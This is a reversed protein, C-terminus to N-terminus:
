RGFEDAMSAAGSMIGRRAGRAFSPAGGKIINESLQPNTLMRGMGKAYALPATAGLMVGAITKADIGGSLVASILGGLAAGSGAGGLQNYMSHKQTKSVNAERQTARIGRGVSAVDALDQQAKGDNGTLIQKVEPSRMKEYNTVFTDPSFDSGTQMQGERKRGLEDIIDGRVQGWNYRLMLRQDQSLPSMPDEAAIRVAQDLTNFNEKANLNHKTLWNYAARESGTAADALSPVIGTDPHMATDWSKRAEGYLAGVDEGQKNAVEQLSDHGADVLKGAAHRNIGVAEGMQPRGALEKTNGTWQKLHSASLGTNRKIDEQVANLKDELEGIVAQYESKRAAPAKKMLARTDAIQKQISKGEAELDLKVSENVVKNRDSSLAGIRADIPGRNETTLTDFSPDNPDGTVLRRHAEDIPTVDAVSKGNILEEASQYKNSASTKVAGAADDALSQVNRPLNEVDPALGGRVGSAIKNVSGKMVEPAQQLSENVRQTLPNMALNQTLTKLRDNGFTAPPLDREIGLREAAAYVDPGTTVDPGPPTRDAFLAKQGQQGVGRVVSPASGGIVAGALGALDAVQQNGPFYKEALGRGYTDAAAGTFGSTVEGLIAPVMARAGGGIAGLPGAFGTFQGAKRTLAYDPNPEATVGSMMRGSVPPNTADAVKRSNQALDTFGLAEAGPAIVHRQMAALPNAVQSAMGVMDATGELLGSGYQKAGETVTNWFGGTNEHAYPDPASPGPTLGSGEAVPVQPAQTTAPKVVGRRVLEDYIPKKDPPLAGRRALEEIVELQTPM